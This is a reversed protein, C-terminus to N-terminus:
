SRRRRRLLPLGALAVLGMSAPEPVSATLSIDDFYASGGAGTGTGYPGGLLNVQVYTAGAPIPTPTVSLLTWTNLTASSTLTAQVTSGIQTGGSAANYFALQLYGTSTGVLPNLSSDEAYGTLTYTAGPIVPLIQTMLGPNSSVAANVRATQTGSHATPGPTTTNLSSDTYGPDGGAYPNTNTGAYLNWGVAGAQETTSADNNIGVDPDTPRDFNSDTLLNQGYSHASFAFVPLAAAAMLAVRVRSRM